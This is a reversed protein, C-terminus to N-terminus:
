PGAPGPFRGRKPAITIRFEGPRVEMIGLAVDNERAWQRLARWSEQPDDRLFYVRLTAWWEDRAKGKRVDALIHELLNGHAM